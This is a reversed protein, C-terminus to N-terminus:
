PQTPERVHATLGADGALRNFAFILSGRALTEYEPHEGRLPMQAAELVKARMERLGEDM